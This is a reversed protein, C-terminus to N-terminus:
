IFFWDVVLFFFTLSIAILVSFILILVTVWYLSLGRALPRLTPAGIRTFKLLMKIIYLGKYSEWSLYSGLECGVHPSLIFNGLPLSSSRKEQIYHFSLLCCHMYWTCYKTHIYWDIIELFCNNEKATLMWSTKKM